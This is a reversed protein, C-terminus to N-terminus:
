RWAATQLGSDDRRYPLWVLAVFQVRVDGSKATVVVPELTEAQADYSAGLADIEGQLTAELALKQETLAQLSENARDVDGAQQSARGMGKAATGLKGISGAGIKGRGFIAGLIAGGVSIATDMKAQSAQQQERQVAQEARRVREQVTAFKSEYKRRLAEIKEDRAERAVQQLRIRFDRETEGTQSTTKFAASKFLTIQENTVVWKQLAKSWAAYSRTNSAAPPVAAFRAGDRAGRELASPEVTIREAQDWDLAIPGDDITALLAVRRQETVGLKANAFSIDSLGLVAPQYELANANAAATPPLWYQTIDAPLVPAATGAGSGASPTAVARPPAAPAGTTAEANARASVARIQERTMPGALYSLTWRTEFTIPAPEHVSHLLFVRKGLGAITQEMAARDFPQSGSAGELGEMVRMKDRETQLRGIFWTGTNSLGRYDLDVPNQTSLVVGLGYARAQKLLTLLLMKSPPNAVPPMYGFLEDIYLIARLSGTGPQTRVWALIDALLLTVFFMREADSLHAISVVSGRPKGNPDYLLSATDLPEGQLWAQFGPAALLNNLQLALGMRDKPPFVTDLPMVGVTTFPPNQIGGILAALDLSRGERWAHHLLNALLIHERSTIPDADIGLLALLSTATANVREQLLEVDDLIAAPPADFARLLSIPKGASSGPTYITVEAANALNQIRDPTQGWGAIGNKWLTAQQEAFADPTQGATAAAQPDIWPRFDDASLRPFRLALNGLDGKPDIAIVPIHDILAEEILGVGLGTKGSGTMGIIVAHTTLDKADYLVLDDTRTRSALDYQKGLYFAGLTEFDTM